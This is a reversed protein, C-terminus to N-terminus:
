RLLSAFQDLFVFIMGKWHSFNWTSPLLRSVEGKKKEETDSLKGTRQVRFIRSCSQQIKDPLGMKDVLVYVIKEHVERQSM